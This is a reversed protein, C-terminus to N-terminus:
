SPPPATRPPSTNFKRGRPSGERGKAEKARKEANARAEEALRRSENWLRLTYEHITKSYVALPNTDVTPAAVSPPCAPQPLSSLMPLSPSHRNSSFLPARLVLSTCPIPRYIVRIVMDAGIVYDNGTHFRQDGSCPM